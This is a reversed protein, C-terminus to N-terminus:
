KMFYLKSRIKPNNSNWYMDEAPMFVCQMHTKILVKSPPRFVKKNSGWNFNPEVLCRSISFIHIHRVRGIKYHFRSRFSNRETSGNKRFLNLNSKWLKALLTQLFSDKRFIWLGASQSTWPRLRDRTQCYETFTSIVYCAQGVLLWISHTGKKLKKM